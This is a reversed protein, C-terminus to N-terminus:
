ARVTAGHAAFQDFWQRMSAESDAAMQGPAFEAADKLSISFAWPKAAQDSPIATVTSGAVGAATYYILDQEERQSWYMFSGNRTMTVDVQFWDEPKTCDGEGKVNWLKGM